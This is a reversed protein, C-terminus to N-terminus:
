PGEKALAGAMAEELATVVAHPQGMASSEFRQRLEYRWAALRQPSDALRQCCQVYDAVSGVVLEDLGLQGLLSAGLRAPGYSGALTVVPVGQWLAHCTTTGGNYPFADLLVDIRQHAQLYEAMPLKPLREVRRGDVGWRALHGGLVQEFQASDAHGLLLRSGPVANLVQAWCDLVTPNLKTLANFSGFTFAGGQLRECTVRQAAPDGGSWVLRSPLYVCNEAAPNQGPPDFLVDTLRGDMGAVGAWMPYGFWQWQVPAVRGAFVGLRNHATHGALDILVDIGDRGISQALEADSMHGCSRWHDFLPTFESEGAPASPHVYYAFLEVRQRNHARLVPELFSAVAHSRLDPSVYGVRIRGDRRAAAPVPWGLGASERALQRGEARHAEILALPDLEAAHTLMFLRASRAQRHGPASAVVADLHKIAFASEGQEFLAQALQYRASVDMPDAAMSLKCVRVAEDIRRRSLLLGGLNVWALAHGPVRALLAELVAIAETGRGLKDLAVARNLAAGDHDPRVALVQRYVAEAETWRALRRLANGLNFQVAVWGPKLHLAQEYANIAEPPPPERLALAEALGAWALAQNADQALLARANAEVRPWDANALAQKLAQALDENVM